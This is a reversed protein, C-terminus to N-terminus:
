ETILSFSLQKGRKGQEFEDVSQLTTTAIDTLAEHTLFAQHSTIITNPFTMLRALNDDAIVSNSFDEFFYRGEKEYVDLGVHSIKKSKIGEILSETDILGGRSTNILMVGPKMKAISDANIMHTNAQTLPVHLTIINSNAYLYDLDTFMLQDKSFNTFEKAKNLLDYVLVKCGFGLMINIVAKGIDGAGIVGVTKGHMDFGELGDLSFNGERIRNYAKHIRRNLTLMLAVTHEAVSYPSYNPVFVADIGYKRCANLDLNDCGKCRMPVLSVDMQNLSKIISDDLCDNVFVCVCEFGKALDITEPTLKLQFFRLTHKGNNVEEFIKRLYPKSDFFAIKM